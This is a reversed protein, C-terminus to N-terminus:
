FSFKSIVLSFNGADGFRAKAYAAQAPSATSHLLAAETQALVERKRIVGFFCALM